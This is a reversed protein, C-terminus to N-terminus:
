NRYGFGSHRDLVLSFPATFIEQRVFYCLAQAEPQMAEGAKGRYWPLLPSIQHRRM